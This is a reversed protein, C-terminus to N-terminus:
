SRRTSASPLSTIRGPMGAKGLMGEIDIGIGGREMEFIMEDRESVARGRRASSSDHHDAGSEGADLHRGLHRVPQVRTPMVPLRRMTRTSGLGATPAVMPACRTGDDLRCQGREVDLRPKAHADHGDLGGAHVQARALEDRRLGHDPAGPHARAPQGLAERARAIAEAAQQDIREHPHGITGPTNAAPSTAELTTSPSCGVTIDQWNARGM